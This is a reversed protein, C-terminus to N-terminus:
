VACFVSAKGYGQLDWLVQDMIRRWKVDVLRSREKNGELIGLDNL